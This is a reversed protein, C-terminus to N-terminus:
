YILICKIVFRSVPSDEDSNEEVVYSDTELFKYTKEM